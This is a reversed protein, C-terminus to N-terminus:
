KRGPTGFIHKEACQVGMLTNLRSIFLLDKSFFSKPLSSDQDAMAQTFVKAITIVEAEGPKLKDLRIRELFAAFGEESFNSLYRFTQASSLEYYAPHGFLTEPTQPVSSKKAFSDRSFFVSLNYAEFLRFLNNRDLHSAKILSMLIKLVMSPNEKVPLRILCTVVEDIRSLCEKDDPFQYTRQIDADLVECFRLTAQIWDKKQALFKASLIFERPQDKTALSLIQTEVHELTESYVPHDVPTRSLKEFLVGVRGITEVRQCYHRLLICSPVVWSVDSQNAGIVSELFPIGFILAVSDLIWHYKSMGLPTQDKSLEKFMNSITTLAAARAKCTIYQHVGLFYLQEISDTFEFNNVFLYNLFETIETVRTFIGPIRKVVIHFVTLGSDGTANIDAGRQIMVRIVGFVQEFSVTSELWRDVMVLLPTQGMRDRVHLLRHPDSANPFFCEITEKVDHFRYVDVFFEGINHLPSSIFLGPSKMDVGQSILFRLAEQIDKIPVKNRRWSFVVMFILNMRGEAVQDLPVGWQQLKKLAGLVEPGNNQRIWGMTINKAVEKLLETRRTFEIPSCLLEIGQLMPEVPQNSRLWYTAALEVFTQGKRNQIQLCESSLPWIKKKELGEYAEIFHQVTLGCSIASSYLFFLVPDLIKSAIGKKFQLFHLGQILLVWHFEPSWKVLNLNSLIWDCAEFLAKFDAKEQFLQERIIQWKQQLIKLEAEIQPNHFIDKFM